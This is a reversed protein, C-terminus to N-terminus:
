SVVIFQEKPSFCSPCKELDSVEATTFGCVSCVYFSKPEGRWTDLNSLAQQYLNAHENEATRALNLTRVAATNACARAQEIFRPYMTDREYTEGAIAAKLNETTTMVEPSKVDAKPEAAMSRLVAAHNGAHIQEARAAARFLSAVAHYGEEDAKTAFATYRAAANSEGDFAAQLNKVTEEAAPGSAAVPTELGSSARGGCALVQTLGIVLVAALALERHLGYSRM